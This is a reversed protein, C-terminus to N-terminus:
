SRVPNRHRQAGGSTFCVGARQGNAAPMACCGDRDGQPPPFLQLARVFQLVDRSGSGADAARRGARSGDHVTACLLRVRAGGAQVDDGAPVRFVVPEGDVDRLGAEDRFLATRSQGDSLGAEHGHVPAGPARDPLGGQHVTYRREQNVTQYVPRRVTYRRERHETRVVPRYVQYRREHNVTQYVPKTVTYRRERRETQYVPKSVTYRREENVTQYVPKTVTYPREVYATETVPRMVTYDENRYALRYRTEMVTVPENVYVTEYVTQYVTEVRPALCAVQFQTAIVPAPTCSHCAGGGYSAWAPAVSGGWVFLAVVAIAITRKVRKIEAM